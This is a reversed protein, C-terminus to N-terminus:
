DMHGEQSFPSQGTKMLHILFHTPYVFHHQFRVKRYAYVDLPMQCGLLTEYVQFYFALLIRLLQM